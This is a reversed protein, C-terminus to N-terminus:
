QTEGQSAAHKSTGAVRDIVALAIKFDALAEIRGEEAAVLAAEADIVEMMSGVGERYEEEALALNEEASALLVATNDIREEAQKLDLYANWVEQGIEQKLAQMQKNLVNLATKEQAIRAQNAYGNFVPFTLGVGAFWSGKIGTSLSSCFLDVGTDASIWPYIKSRAFRIDAKQASIQAEAKRIEPRMRLARGHLNRFERTGKLDTKELDDRVEIPLHAERGLLVNLAGMTFLRTNRARILSLEANSREVEAKLIDARSVLGADFRAQAFELFYEARELAQLAAKELHRSQLYRYYAQSVNLILDQLSAEHQNTVARYASEAADYTATKGGGQYLYYHARADANYRSYSGSKGSIEDQRNKYVDAGVSLNIEPYYGSRAEVTNIRSKEVEYASALLAPNNSQALAICEDLSLVAEKERITEANLPILLFVVMFIVPLIFRNLCYRRLQFSKKDREDMDLSLARNESYDMKMRIKRDISLFYSLDCQIM